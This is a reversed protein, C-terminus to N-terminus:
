WCFLITKTKIIEYKYCPPRICLNSKVMGWIWANPETTTLPVRSGKSHEAKPMSHVGFVKSMNPRGSTKEFWQVERRKHCGGDDSRRFHRHNLTMRNTGSIEKIITEGFDSQMCPYEVSQVRITKDHISPNPSANRCTYIKFEESMPELKLTIRILSKLAPQKKHSM